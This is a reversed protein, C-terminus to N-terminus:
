ALADQRHEQVEAIADLLDSLAQVQEDIDARLRQACGSRVDRADVLLVQSYITGLAAVTEDSYLEAQTMVRELARLYRLQSQRAALTQHVAEKVSTDTDRDEILRAELMHVARPVTSRDRRFIPDRELENLRATLRELYAIWEDLRRTSAQLRERLPGERAQAIVEKIRAQYDYAKKLRKQRAEINSLVHPLTQEVSADPTATIRRYAYWVILAVGLLVAGYALGYQLTAALFAIASKEPVFYILVRAVAALGFMGILMKLIENRTKRTDLRARRVASALSKREAIRRTRQVTGQIVARPRRHHYAYLGAAALLMLMGPLLCLLEPLIFNLRTSLKLSSLTEASLFDVAFSLPILLYMGGVFILVIAGLLALSMPRTRDRLILLAANLLCSISGTLAGMWILSGWISNQNNVILKVTYAGLAVGIVIFTAIAVAELAQHTSTPPKAYEGQIELLAEEVAAVFDETVEYREDPDTATACAIVDRMPAPIRIASLSRTLLTQEAARKGTLLEYLLVGLAYIDARGDVPKGARQEPAMYAPTGGAADSGLTTRQKPQIVRAIGFDALLVSGSRSFLVNSPKVDLHVVGFAHAYGLADGVQCAFSAAKEISLPKGLREALTGGRVYQIVLYPTDGHRGSDYIPLINPHELQALTRAEREFHKLFTPDRGLESSIVKVAVYRDLSPQYAKYVEAMGGVNLQEVIHYQGLQIGTLDM